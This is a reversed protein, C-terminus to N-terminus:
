SPGDYTGLETPASVKKKTLPVILDRPVEFEPDATKPPSRIEEPTICLRAPNVPDKVRSAPPVEKRLAPAFMVIVVPDVPCTVIDDVAGPVGPPEFM